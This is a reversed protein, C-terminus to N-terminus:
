SRCPFLNLIGSLASERGFNSAEKRVYLYSLRTPKLKASVSDSMQLVDDTYTELRTRLKDLWGDSFVKGFTQHDRLKSVYPLAYYHLHLSSESM